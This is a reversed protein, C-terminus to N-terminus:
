RASTRSRRITDISLSFCIVLHLIVAPWLLVGAAAGIIGLYGLYVAVATSYILMGLVPPGPWCAMGLGVLAFGAVRSLAVANGSLPAGLLLQCVASPALLLAAGTAAEAVAALRLARM